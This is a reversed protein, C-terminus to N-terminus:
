RGEGQTRRLRSAAERIGELDPLALHQERILQLQTENFWGSRDVHQVLMSGSRYQSIDLEVTRYNAQRNSYDFDVNALNDHMGYRINQSYQLMNSFHDCAAIPPLPATPRGWNRDVSMQLIGPIVIRFFRDETVEAEIPVTRVYPFEAVGTPFFSSVLRMFALQQEPTSSSDFYLAALKQYDMACPGSTQVLRLNNLSVAAYHGERIQLYLTAECHGYTPSGNHRCPCPVQCPCAVVGEGRLRWDAGDYHIVEPRLPTAEPGRVVVSYILVPLLAIKGLIKM